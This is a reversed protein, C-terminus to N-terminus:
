CCEGTDGEVAVLAERLWSFPLDETTVETAPKFVKFLHRRGDPTWFVVVTELPPCGPLTCALESVMVACEAPLDFRVQTWARVRAQAERTAARTGWARM